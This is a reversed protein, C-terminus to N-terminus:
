TQLHRWIMSLDYNSVSRLVEPWRATFPVGAPNTRMLERKIFPCRYDKLLVDWFHHMPNLPRANILQNLLHRTYGREGEPLEDIDTKLLRDMMTHSAAWYPILVGARLKQRTLAQTLKLEGHRIVWSKHNVYPFSNWFKRFADSKFAKPFFLIFYSQIHYSSQWSDTIGWFDTHDRDIRSLCEKLSVFPGYSSDNMMLLGTLDDMGSREVARLGDKYAGFDYGFNRRWIIERVFPAVQQVSEEPFKPANSVFTVRFGTAVLERLQHLVYDHIVGERDFHVYIAALKSNSLPDAGTWSKRIFNLLRLAHGSLGLVIDILAEVLLVSKHFLAKLLSMLVFGSPLLRM